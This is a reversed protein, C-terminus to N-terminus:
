AESGAAVNKATGEEPRHQGNGAGRPAQLLVALLSLLPVPLLPGFGAALRALFPSSTAQVQPARQQRLSACIRQSFPPM